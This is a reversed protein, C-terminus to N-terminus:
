SRHEMLGSEWVINYISQRKDKDRNDGFEEYHKELEYMWLLVYM